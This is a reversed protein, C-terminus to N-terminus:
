QDNHFGNEMPHTAIWDAFAVGNFQPDPFSIPGIVALMQRFQYVGLGIM